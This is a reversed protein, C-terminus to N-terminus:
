PTPSPSPLAAGSPVAPGYAGATGDLAAGLALVIAIRGAAVDYSDVTSVGKIIPGESGRAEDLVGPVGTVPTPGAVAAGEGSTGLDHAMTLLIESQERLTATPTGTDGAPVLLLGLAAQRTPTNGSVSLLKGASFADLVQAIRAPSVATRAPRTVLVSALKADAAAAGSTPASPQRGPLEKALQGLEASEGPDTYSSSLRVDATVQAGAESLVSLVASRDSGSVGPASVVAVTEGSLQEAVAQPQLAADFQQARSLQKRALDRQGTLVHNDKTVTNARGKLDDFVRGQLTTSGLFLGLALALLVAVISVVHYRFDIM